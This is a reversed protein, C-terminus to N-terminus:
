TMRFACTSGTPHCVHTAMMMMKAMETTIETSITEAAGRAGGRRHGRTWMGTGGGAQVLGTRFIRGRATMRRRALLRM